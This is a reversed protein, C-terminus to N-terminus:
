VFFDDTNNYIVNKQVPEYFSGSLLDLKSNEVYNNNLKQRIGNLFVLSSNNNYNQITNFFGKNGSLSIFNLDHEKAMFLDNKDSGTNLQIANYPIFNFVNSDFGSSFGGSNIFSNDVTYDSNFRLARSYSIGKYGTFGGGILIKGDNQTVIKLITDNFGISPNYIYNITGTNNLVVFRPASVLGTDTIIGAFSGGILINNNKDKEIALVNGGSIGTGKFGSILNGNYDIKALASYRNDGNIGSINGGIFIGDNDLYLTNLGIGSIFYGGTFSTDLNGNHDLKVFNKVRINNYGTFLGGVYINDNKDVVIKNVNSNFGGGPPIFSTDISGDYNFRCIRNQIINNCGTFDGGVIYQDKYKCITYINQNNVFGTFTADLNGSSNFRAIKQKLVGKYDTFEGVALFQNNDLIGDRVTNNVATNFYSDFTGSNNISIIRNKSSLNKFSTFSGLALIQSRVNYDIGSLLKQGNKFVFSKDLGTEPSSPALIVRDGSKYGSIFSFYYNERDNYYDYFLQNTENFNNNVEIRDGTTFYDLNAKRITEYGSQIPGGGSSTLAQGQAFLLINKNSIDFSSNYFNNEVNDYNLDVNVEKTEYQYPNYYVEVLGDQYV